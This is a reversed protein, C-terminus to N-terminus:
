ERQLPAYEWSSGAHRVALVYKGRAIRSFDVAVVLELTHDKLITPATTHLLPLNGDLATKVEVEYNGDERSQPLIIIIQRTDAGVRTAPVNNPQSSRTTAIERLDMTAIPVSHVISQSSWIWIIAAFLFCAVVAVSSRRVLNRRKSMRVVTDLCTPCDAQHVLIRDREVASRLSGAVFRRLMKPSPCIERPGDAVPLSLLMKGLEEEAKAGYQKRNAM